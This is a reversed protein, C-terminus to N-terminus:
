AKRIFQSEELGVAFHNRRLYDVIKLSAHQGTVQWSDFLRSFDAGNRYVKITETGHMGGDPSYKLTYPDGWGQYGLLEAVKLAPVTGDALPTCLDAFGFLVPTVDEYPWCSNGIFGDEVTRVHVPNENPMADSIGTFLARFGDPSCAEVEIGYPLYPALIELTTM